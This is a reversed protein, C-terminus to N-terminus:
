PKGSSGRITRCSEEWMRESESERCKWLSTGAGVGLLIFAAVVAAIGGQIRSTPVTGILALVVARVTTWCNVAIVPLSHGAFASALCGAGLLACETRRSLWYSYGYAVFAGALATRLPTVLVHSRAWLSSVMEGSAGCSVLVALAPLVLQLAARRSGTLWRPKMRPLCIAAAILVPALNCLRFPVYYLWNLAILHAGISILPVYLLMPRLIAGYRAATGNRHYALWRPQVLLYWAVILAAPVWWGMYSSFATVQAGADLAAFLGPLGFLAIFQLFAFALLAPVLRIRLIRLIAALKVMALAALALNVLLGISVDAVVSEMGLFTFDALFLVELIILTRGDRLLGAKLILYMGLAILLGEYINLIVLLAVPGSLSGPELIFIGGLLYCGVLMCLASLLYLPNYSFFLRRM